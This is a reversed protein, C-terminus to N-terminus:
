QNQSQTPSAIVKVTKGSAGPFGKFLAATLQEVSVFGAGGDNSAIAEGEWSVANEARRILQVDLTNVLAEGGSSGGLPVSVGGSVGGSSGFSGGGIGISFPSRKPAQQQVQRSIKVAAFLPADNGDVSTFGLEALENAVATAYSQYELSSDDVGKAPEININQPAIDKNLHFRTVEISSQPQSACGAVIVILLTLTIKFISSNM